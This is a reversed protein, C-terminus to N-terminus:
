YVFIVNGNALGVSSSVRSQSLIKNTRDYARNTRQEVLDANSGSCTTIKTFNGSAFDLQFMIGRGYGCGYILYGYGSSPADPINVSWPIACETADEM